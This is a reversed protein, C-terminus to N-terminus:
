NISKWIGFESVQEFIITNGAVEVEQTTLRHFREIPQRGNTLESEKHSDFYLRLRLVEPLTESEMSLVGIFPSTQEYTVTDLNHTGALDGGIGELIGADGTSNLYINFVNIVQPNDGDVVRGKLTLGANPLAEEFDSAPWRPHEIVMPTTRFFSRPYKELISLQTGSPGGPQSPWDVSLGYESSANIPYGASGIPAWSLLDESHELFRQQGPEGGSLISRRAGSFDVEPTSRELLQATPMNDDVLYPNLFEIPDFTSNFVEFEISRLEATTGNLIEDVTFRSASVVGGSQKTYNSSLVTGIHTHRGDYNPNGYFGTILVEGGATNPAGVGSNAFAVAYRQNASVVGSTTAFRGGWLNANSFNAYNNDVIENQFVLGSRQNPVAKERGLSIYPYDGGFRLLDDDGYFPGKTLTPLISVDEKIIFRATSSSSNFTLTYGPNSSYWTSNIRTFRAVESGTAKQTLTAGNPLFDATDAVITYAAASSLATGGALSPIYEGTPNGTSNVAQNRYYNDTSDFYPIETNTELRYYPINNITVKALTFYPNDSTWTSESRTLTALVSGTAQRTVFAVTPSNGPTTPLVNYITSSPLLLSGNSNIPIYEGAPNLTTTAFRNRYYSEKPEALLMFAAVSRPAHAHDLQIVFQKEPTGTTETYEVTVIAYVQGALQGLSALFTFLLLFIKM